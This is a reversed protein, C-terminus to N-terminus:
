EMVIIKNIGIVKGDQELKLIYIGAPLGERSFTIERNDVPQKRVLEGNVNYLVLSTASVKEPLILRAFDVVPNPYIQFSTGPNLVENSTQLPCYQIFTQHQVTNLSDAEDYVIVQIIVSDGPVLTDHWFSFVIEASDQAELYRIGKTVHYFYQIGDFIFLFDTEDPIQFQTRKWRLIIDEDTNNFIFHSAVEPPRKECSVLIATDVSFILSQARIPTACYLLVIAFLIVHGIRNMITLYLIHRCAVIKLRCM